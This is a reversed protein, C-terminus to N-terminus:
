EKGEKLQEALLRRCATQIHGLHTNMYVAWQKGGRMSSHELGKIQEEQIERAKAMVENLVMARIEAETTTPQETIVELVEEFFADADKSNYTINRIADFLAYRNILKAM